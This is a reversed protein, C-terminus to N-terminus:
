LATSRIFNSDRNCGPRPENTPQCDNAFPEGKTLQFKVVAKTGEM